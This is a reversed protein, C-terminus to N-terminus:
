GCVREAVEILVAAVADTASVSVWEEAAHAGDGSPGFMITPIGADAIFAADAWYSAGAIAPPTGLVAAAADRALEVLPADDAIEFPDRVLLTRQEAELQPDQAGCSQLLSELEASVTAATEGPLTRREIGVTCRAPYSSLEEGGQITSAHVSGRGLLPHRRADLTADLKTLATLIAGTKAIADVGLHPRSGHAARSRVEVESWVFGKHAVVLELETPETVIAAGIVPDAPLTALVEQIGLSSYEEDAVAAVLVDGALGSQGLERCAVLAAALAAKMDYAGRGYLRDGDLRPTHPDAMGDVTVTDYHGCLLSTRGGGSGHAKVVVSPRGPTQELLEANLGCGRAWEVVFAAIEREGAGGAVLSPNVSDIAVLAKLLELTDAAM